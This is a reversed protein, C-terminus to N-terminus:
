ELGIKVHVERELFRRVNAVTLKDELSQLAGESVTQAVFRNDWMRIEFGCENTLYRTWSSLLQRAEETDVWKEYALWGMTDLLFAVEIEAVPYTVQVSSNRDLSSIPTSLAAGKKNGFVVKCGVFPEKASKLDPVYYKIEKCDLAREAREHLAWFSQLLGCLDVLRAMDSILFTQGLDCYCSSPKVNLVTKSKLELFAGGGLREENQKIDLEIDYRRLWRGMVKLCMLAFEQRTKDKYDPKEKSAM